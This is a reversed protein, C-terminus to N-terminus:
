KLGRRYRMIDLLRRRAESNGPNMSLLIQYQQQAEDLRNLALYCEGLMYLAEADGKRATVAKELYTLAETYHKGFMLVQGLRLNPEFQAPYLETLHRLSRTADEVRGDAIYLQALYFNADYNRGDLALAHEFARQAGEKDGRSFYIMGLKGWAEIQGPKHETVYLLDDMAEQQRGLGLLAGARNVRVEPRDPAFQVCLDAFEYAKEYDKLLTYAVGRENLPQLVAEVADYNDGYSPIYETKLWELTAADLAADLPTPTITALLGAPAFKARLEGGVEPMNPGLTQYDVYVHRGVAATQLALRASQVLTIRQDNPDVHEVDPRLGEGQQMWKMIFSPNIDSTQVFARSPLSALIHYGYDRAAPYATTGNAQLGHWFIGGLLGALVIIVLVIAIVGARAFSTLPIFVARLNGRVLALVMTIGIATLTLALVFAPILYVSIDEIDYSLMLGVGVVMVYLSAFLAAKRQWGAIIGLPLSLWLWFPLQRFALNGLDGLQLEMRLPTMALMKSRFQAGSLERWLRDATTVQLWNADPATTARLPMFLLLSLGLLFFALIPAIWGPHRWLRPLILILVLPLITAFTLHHCLGLGCVFALVLVIRIDDKGGRIPLALHLALMILLLNLAYVEVRVAQSWILPTVATMMGALAAACLRLWEARDHLLRAAWLGVLGAAGAGALVSVLSSAAPAALAFGRNLLGGLNVFLPYGTPHCIGLSSVGLILDCSDMFGIQRDWFALYVLLSGVFGPLFAWLAQRWRSPLFQRRSGMHELCLM